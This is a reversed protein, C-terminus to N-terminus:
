ALSRTAKVCVAHGLHSCRLEFEGEYGIRYLGLGSSEAPDNMLEELRRLYPASKDPAASLEAIRLKLKEVNTQDTVANTVEVTLTEDHLSCSFEINPIDVLSEGYKIANELLEAAVMSAASRVSEPYEALQENIQHRIARITAWVPQIKAEVHIERM